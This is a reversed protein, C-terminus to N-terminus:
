WRTHQEEAKPFSALHTTLAELLDDLANPFPSGILRFERVYLVKTRVDRLKEVLDLALEVGALNLRMTEVFHRILRLRSIDKDSYLRLMGVTRSPTILGVREYKRLTQPHMNLMKSAVSIIYLGLSQKAQELQEEQLSAESPAVPSGPTKTQTGSLNESDMWPWVGTWNGTSTREQTPQKGKSHM